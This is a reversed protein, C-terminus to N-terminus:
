YVNEIFFEKLEELMQLYENKINNYIERSKDEDYLHSLMNRDLMMQIWKDGDKIVKSKYASQIIVRPTGVNDIIGNYELYDKLTKWALEFTFEYRQLTGDIVIETPEQLFAEKLRELARNYDEIREKLRKM